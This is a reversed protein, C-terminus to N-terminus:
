KPFYLSFWLGDCLGFVRGRSQGGSRCLLCGSKPRVEAVLCLVTLLVDDDIDYDHCYM